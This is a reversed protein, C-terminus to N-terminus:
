IYINWVCISSDNSISIIQKDDPSWNLGTVERSHGQTKGFKENNQLGLDILMSSIATYAGAELKEIQVNGSDKAILSM